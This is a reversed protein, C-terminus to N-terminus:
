QSALPQTLVVITSAGGARALDMTGVAKGFEAEEDADFFVTRDGRAALVRRLRNSFEADPVVERNILIENKANVRVMLPLNSDDPEAPEDKKDLNPLHLWFQKAMLPT